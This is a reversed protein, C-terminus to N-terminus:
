IGSFGRGLITFVTQGASTEMPLAMNKERLCLRLNSIGCTFTTVSVYNRYSKALPM